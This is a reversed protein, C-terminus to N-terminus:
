AAGGKGLVMWAVFLAGALFVLRGLGEGAGEEAAADSGAPAESEFSPAASSADFGPGFTTEPAGAAASSTPGSSVPAPTLRIPLENVPAEAVAQPTGIPLRHGTRAWTGRHPSVLGNALDTPSVGIGLRLKPGLRGRDIAAGKRLTRNHAAMAPTTAPGTRALYGHTPVDVPPPVNPVRQRLTSALPAAIMARTEHALRRPAWRRVPLEPELMKEVTGVTLVPSSGEPGPAVSVGTGGAAALPKAFTAPTLPLNAPAETRAGRGLELAARELQLPGNTPRTTALGLDRKVLARKGAIM